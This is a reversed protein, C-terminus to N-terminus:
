KNSNTIWGFYQLFWLENDDNNDQLNDIKKDKTIVYIKKNDDIGKKYYNECYKCVDEM